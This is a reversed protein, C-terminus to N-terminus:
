VMLILPLLPKRAAVPMGAPAEHRWFRLTCPAVAKASSAASGSRPAEKFKFTCPVASKSKPTAKLVKPTPAAVRESDAELIKPTPAAVSEADTEADFLEHITQLKAAKPTPAAVSEADSEADFLEQGSAGSAAACALAKVGKRRRNYDLIHNQARIIAAEAEDLAQKTGALQAVKLLEQADLIYKEAMGMSRQAHPRWGAARKPAAQMVAPRRAGCQRGGPRRRTAGSAAKEVQKSRAGSAAKEAQKSRDGSAAKEAQKSKGGGGGRSRVGGRQGWAM